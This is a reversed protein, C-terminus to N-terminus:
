LIRDFIFNNNREGVNRLGSRYAAKQSPINDRDIIVRFADAGHARAFEIRACYLMKSIGMGRCSSYIHTEEGEAIKRGRFNFICVESSGVIQKEPNLILFAAQNPNEFITSFIKPGELYMANLYEVRDFNHHTRSDKYSLLKAEFFLALDREELMHCSYGNQALIKKM